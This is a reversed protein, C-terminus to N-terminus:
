WLAVVGTATTGTQRIRIARVALVTGGQVNVFDVIQGDKMEVSIDGTNGVYIARSTCKLPLTDDPTVSAASTAPSTLTLPADKYFDM